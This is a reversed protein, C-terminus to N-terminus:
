IYGALLLYFNCIDNYRQHFLCSLPVVSQPVRVGALGTPHQGRDFHLRIMQCFDPQICSGEGRHSRRLVVLQVTTSAAGVLVSIYLATYIIHFVCYSAYQILKQLKNDIFFTSIIVFTEM